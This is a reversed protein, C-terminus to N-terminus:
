CIQHWFYGRLHDHLYSDFDKTSNIEEFFKKQTDRCGAWRVFYHRCNLPRRVIGKKWIKLFIKSKQFILEWTLRSFAAVFSYLCLPFNRWCYKNSRMYFDFALHLTFDHVETASIWSWLRGDWVWVNEINNIIYNHQLKLSIWAVVLLISVTMIELWPNRQVYSDSCGAHYKISVFLAIENLLEEQPSIWDIRHKHINNTMSKRSHILSSINRNSTINSRAYIKFKIVFTPM